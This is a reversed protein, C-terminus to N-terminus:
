PNISHLRRLSEHSFFFLTTFKTWEKDYGITNDPVIMNPGM